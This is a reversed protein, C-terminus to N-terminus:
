CQEAICGAVGYRSLVGCFSLRPDAPGSFYSHNEPLPIAEPVAKLPGYDVVYPDLIESRDVAAGQFPVRLQPEILVQPRAKSVPLSFARDVSSLIISCPGIWQPM